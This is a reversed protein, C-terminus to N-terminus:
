RWIIQRKPSNKTPFKTARSKKERLMRRMSDNKANVFEEDFYEEGYIEESLVNETPINTAYLFNSQQCPKKTPFNKAPIKKALVNKAHFVFFKLAIFKGVL